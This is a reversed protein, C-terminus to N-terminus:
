IRSYRNKRVNKKQTHAHDRVFGKKREEGGPEQAQNNGNIGRRHQNYMHAQTHTGRHTCTFIHLYLSLYKSFILLDTVIDRATNVYFVSISTRLSTFCATFHCTKLCTVSHLVFSYFVIFTETKRVRHPTKSQSEWNVM